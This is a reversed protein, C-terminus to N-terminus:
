ADELWGFAGATVTAPKDSIATFAVWQGESVAFPGFDSLTVSNDQLGVAALPHLYGQDGFVDGNAFSGEFKVVTKAATSGSTSGAFMANVMLRKGAPVRYLAANYQVDGQNIRLQQIGSASATITGVAGNNMLYANNVARIDTAQTLVPTLGNLQVAETREVLSGDLYRIKLIGTDSASTSVVSLRVGAPVTLTDPMGTEQVIREVGAVTDTLGFIHWLKSGPVIGRAIDFTNVNRWLREPWGSTKPFEPM